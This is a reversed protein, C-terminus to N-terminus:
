NEILGNPAMNLQSSGVMATNILICQELPDLGGTPSLGILM